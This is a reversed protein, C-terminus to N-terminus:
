KNLAALAEALNKVPVIKFDDKGIKERAARAEGNPVIMMEAGADRAVIAKQAVGGVPGVTGDPEISGTVAIRRGGTLNKPSLDDIISLTFALGASPGSVRNTDIRVDVPFDWTGVTEAVIGLLGKGDQEGLKVAVSRAAGDRRVVLKIEEDPSHAQVAARVKAADDVPEGDVQLVEDGLQLRRFSPGDCAVSTVYVATSTQPVVYGLHQLAAVRASNQAKDMLAENLRTSESYTACGIVDERPEISVNDNVQALLWRLVSPDGDSVRVTLYLVGGRHSYTKADTIEIISKDLLTAAGPSIIVYPVKVVVLAVLIAVVLAAAAAGATFLGIRRRKSRREILGSQSPDPNSM